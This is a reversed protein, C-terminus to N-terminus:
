DSLNLEPPRVFVEYAEESKGAASNGDHVWVRFRMTLPKGPELTVVQLAPWSVGLFGYHRLCWGAPFDPPASITLVRDAKASAAFILVTSAVLIRYLNRM